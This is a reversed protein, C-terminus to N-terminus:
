LLLCAAQRSTWYYVNLKCGLQVIKHFNMIEVYTVCHEVGAVHMEGYIVCNKKYIIFTWVCIHLREEM